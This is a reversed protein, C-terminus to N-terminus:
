NFHVIYRPLLQSGKTLVFIDESGGFKHDTRFSGCAALSLLMMKSDRAYEMATEPNAAVYVGQGYVAGTRIAVEQGGVKFGERIIKDIAENSTGHFLLRENAATRAEIEKKSAEYREELASCRTYEVAEIQWVVLFRLLM